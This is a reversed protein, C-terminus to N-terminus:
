FNAQAGGSRAPRIEDILAQVNWNEPDGDRPKNQPKKVPTPAPAWEHAQIHVTYTGGTTPHAASVEGVTIVNIGWLRANPHGIELPDRAGNKSRPRLLPIHSEFEQLEEPLLEVEIDLQAPPAGEDRITAKKGGKPKQIDLGSPLSINVRAVGPIRKGGLYLADWDETRWWDPAPM